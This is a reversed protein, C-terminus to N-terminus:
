KILTNLYSCVKRFENRDTIPFLKCKFKKLTFRYIYLNKNNPEFFVAYPVGNLEVKGLIDCEATTKDKFQLNVM